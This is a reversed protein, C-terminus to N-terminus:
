RGLDKCPGSEGFRTLNVVGVPGLGIGIVSHFGVVPIQLPAQSRHAAQFGIMSGSGNDGPVREDLVDTAVV